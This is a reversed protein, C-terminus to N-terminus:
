LEGWDELRSSPSGFLVVDRFGVAGREKQYIPTTYHWVNQDNFLLLDGPDLTDAFATADTDSSYSLMSVGGTVNSRNVVLIGVLSVNDRHFGEVAPLGSNGDKGATATIRQAQVLIEDSTKLRACTWFL